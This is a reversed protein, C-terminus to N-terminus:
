GSTPLEWVGLVEWGSSPLEWVTVDLVDWDFMEIDPSFGAWIGM